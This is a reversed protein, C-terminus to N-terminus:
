SIRYRILFWFKVNNMRPFAVAVGLMRRVLNNIKELKVWNIFDIGPIPM